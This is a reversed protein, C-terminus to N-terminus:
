RFFPIKNRTNRLYELEVNFITFMSCLSRYNMPKIEVFAIFVDLGVFM